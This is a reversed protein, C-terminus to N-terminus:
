ATVTADEDCLPRHFFVGHSFVRSLMHADHFLSNARTDRNGESDSPTGSLVGPLRHEQVVQSIQDGEGSSRSLCRSRLSLHLGTDRVSVAIAHNTGVDVKLWGDRAVLAHVIAYGLPFLTAVPLIRFWLCLGSPHVCIGNDRSSHAFISAHQCPQRALWFATRNTRGMIRAVGLQLCVNHPNGRSQVRSLKSRGFSPQPPMADLGWLCLM